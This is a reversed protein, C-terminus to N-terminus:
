AKVFLKRPFKCFTEAGTETVEFCESIEVGWDDMWIGPIMHITMGPQLETRDGPRLSITSEGWDPPYNLGTSYGIRSDKVIGHKAVASRWVEEVEDCTIGPTITTSPRVAASSATLGPMVQSSTSSTQRLVTALCPMTLSERM